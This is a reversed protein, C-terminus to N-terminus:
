GIKGKTSTSGRRDSKRTAEFLARGFAKFTAECVHHDNAGAVKRLHLTFKGHTAVAGFFERVCETSVDGLRERDFPVDFYVGGRGSVDIAALVLADDMSTHNSGYRVIADGQHLAQAIAKGLVIGVDEVTHHDDVHLDGEATIGVDMQGHFAMQALMHDFFALGTHIDRRTGGDLDLVVQVRTESTERDVEAYRIGPASKSM